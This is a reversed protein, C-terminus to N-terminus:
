IGTTGARYVHNNIMVLWKQGGGGTAPSTVLHNDVRQVLRILKLNLASSTGGSANNLTTGSVYVGTAPAAYLINYNTQLAAGTLNTGSGGEQIEYLTNPDDTVAIYYNLGNKTAPISNTTLNNPNIYPGGMGGGQQFGIGGSYFVGVAPNGATALTVVPIGNTDGAGTPVVLDGPWFPNTDTSLICYLNLKGTWKSATVSDVPSLGAPKSPNVFM